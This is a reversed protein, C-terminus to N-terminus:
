MKKNLHKFYTEAMEELDDGNNQCIFRALFAETEFPMRQERSMRSWLRTVKDTVNLRLRKHRRVYQSHFISFGSCCLRTKPETECWVKAFQNRFEGDSHPEIKIPRNPEANDSYDSSDNAPTSPRYHNRNM